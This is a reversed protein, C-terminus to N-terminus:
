MSILKRNNQKTFILFLKYLFSNTSKLHPYNLARNTSNLTCSVQSNVINYIHMTILLVSLIDFSVHFTDFLSFFSFLLFCSLAVLPGRRLSFDRVKLHAELKMSMNSLNFTKIITSVVLVMQKQSFLVIYQLM